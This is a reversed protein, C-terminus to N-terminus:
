IKNLIYENFKENQELLDYDESKFYIKIKDVFLSKYEEREVENKFSQKKRDALLELLFNKQRSSIEGLVETFIELEKSVEINNIEINENQSSQAYSSNLTSFMLFSVLLIRKM